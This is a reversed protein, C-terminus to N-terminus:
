VQKIDTIPEKIGKLTDIARRYAMAKGRNKELENKRKLKELGDIIAKNPGGVLEGGSPKSEVKQPAAPKIKTIIKSQAGPMMLKTQQGPKYQQNTTGYPSKVM